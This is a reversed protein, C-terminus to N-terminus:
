LVAPSTQSLGLPPQIHQWAQFIGDGQILGTKLSSTTETERHPTSGGIRAHPAITRRLYGALPRYVILTDPEARPSTGRRSLKHASVDGRSHLSCSSPARRMM